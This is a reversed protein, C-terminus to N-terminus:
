KNEEIRKLDKKYQIITEQNNPKRKNELSKKFNSLYILRM